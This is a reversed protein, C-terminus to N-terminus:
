FRYIKNDLIFSRCVSFSGVPKYNGLKDAIFGAIPSGLVSAFPLITYVFATEEVTIGLARM